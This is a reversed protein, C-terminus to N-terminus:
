IMIKFFHNVSNVSNYVYFEEVIKKTVLIFLAKWIVNNFNNVLPYKVGLQHQTYMCSFSLANPDFLFM